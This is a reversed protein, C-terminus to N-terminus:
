GDERMETLAADVDCGRGNQYPLKGLAAGMALAGLMLASVRTADILKSINTGVVVGSTAAVLFTPQLRIM